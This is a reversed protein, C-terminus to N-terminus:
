IVNNYTTTDFIGTGAINAVLTGDLNATAAYIQPYTGIPATGDAQPLDFIITGTGGVTFTNVFAYSPGAVPDILLHLAGGNNITLTGQGGNHQVANDFTLATPGALPM